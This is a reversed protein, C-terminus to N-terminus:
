SPRAARLPQLAVTEVALERAAYQPVEAPARAVAYLWISLMGLTCLPSLYSFLSGSYSQSHALYMFALNAAPGAFQLGLGIVLWNLQEDTSELHAMLLYLLTNLVLCAFYLNQQFEVIFMSFLHDYNKSLSLFSIGAVLAFVSILMTRLTGWLQPHRSCARRFLACILLFAGLVLVVDSVWYLNAYQSSSFGYRFLVIRRVAGVGLMVAAYAALAKLPKANGRRWAFVIIAAELPYGAFGIILNFVHGVMLLVSTLPRIWTAKPDGM